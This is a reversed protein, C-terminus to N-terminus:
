NKIRLKGKVGVDQKKGTVASTVIRLLSIIKGNKTDWYYAALPQVKALILEEDEPGTFYAKDMVSWMKKRKEMDGSFNVKGYVSLFEIKGTSSFFLQVRNDNQLEKYHEGKREMFFWINGEEDVDKAHMPRASLPLEELNTTFICNKIDKVIEKIKKIAENASLNRTDTM